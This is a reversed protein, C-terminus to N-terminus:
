KLTAMAVIFSDIATIGLLSMATVFFGCPFACTVLIYLEFLLGLAVLSLGCICFAIETIKDM